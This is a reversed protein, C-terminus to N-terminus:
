DQRTKESYIRRYEGPTIGTLRKFSRNFTGPLDFGTMSSIELIPRNTTVLLTKAKKIRYDTLYDPFGIGSKRKFYKSVYSYSLGTKEALTQLYIDKDYNETVYKKIRIYLDDDSTFENTVRRYCETLTDQMFFVNYSHRIRDIAEDCFSIESGKQSAALLNLLYICLDRHAALPSNTNNNFIKEICSMVSSIDGRLTNNILATEDKMNLNPSLDSHETSSKERYHHIICKRTKYDFPLTFVDWSEELAERLDALDTHKRSLGIFLLGTTPSMEITLLSKELEESKCEIYFSWQRGVHYFRKCKGICSFVEAIKDIVELNEIGDDGESVATVVYYTLVHPLLNIDDQYTVGMALKSLVNELYIEDHKELHASLLKLRTDMMSLSLDIFKLEDRTNPTNQSMDDASRLKTVIGHLPNYLKRFFVFLFLSIIIVFSIVSTIIYQNLKTTGETAANRDFGMIVSIQENGVKFCNKSLLYYYDKGYDGNQLTYLYDEVNDFQKSINVKGFQAIIVGKENLVLINSTGKATTESLQLNLVEKPIIAIALMDQEKLILVDSMEDQNLVHSMRNFYSSKGEIYDGKRIDLSEISIYNYKDKEFRVFGRASYGTDSKQFYIILKYNRNSGEQLFNLSRILAMSKTMNSNTISKRYSFELTIPDTMIRELATFADQYVNDISLIAANLRSAHSNAIDTRYNRYFIMTNILQLILVLAVFLITVRLTGSMVKKNSYNTRKM